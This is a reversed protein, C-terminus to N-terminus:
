EKSPDIEIIKKRTFKTKINKRLLKKVVSRTAPILFIFGLIDTLFGPTLLLLGGALVIVGDLLHDAPMVQRSLEYKIRNIIIFGQSRALAAGIIGTLIVIAITYFIGIVRGVQLLIALEIIPVVTFLLLLYGFM